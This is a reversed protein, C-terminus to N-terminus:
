MVRTSTLKKSQERLELPLVGRVAMVQYAPMRLSVETRRLLKQWGQREQLAKRLEDFRVQPDLVYLVYEWQEEVEATEQGACTSAGAARMGPQADANGPQQAQGTPDQASAYAHQLSPATSHQNGWLGRTVDDDSSGATLDVTSQLHTSAPMPQSPYLGLHGGGHGPAPVHYQASTSAHGSGCDVTARTARQEAAAAAAASASLQTSSGGVVGSGGTLAPASQPGGSGSEGRGAGGRGGRNSRVGGLGESMRRGGQGGGRRRGGAGGRQAGHRGRGPSPQPPAAGDEETGPAEATNTNQRTSTRSRSITMSGGGRGRTGGAGRPRSELEIDAISGAISETSWLPPPIDTSSLSETPSAMAGRLTAAEDDTDSGTTLDLGGAMLSHPMQGPLPQLHQDLPNQPALRASLDEQLACTGAARAGAAVGLSRESLAPLALSAAVSATSRAAASTSVEAPGTRRRGTGSIMVEPLSRQGPLRASTNLGARGLGSPAKRANQSAARISGTGSRPAVGGQGRRAKVAPSAGRGGSGPPRREIGIVTTSHGQYQLYLPPAATVVCHPSMHTSGGDQAANSFYKYIWPLMKKAAATPGPPRSSRPKSQSNTSTSPPPNM